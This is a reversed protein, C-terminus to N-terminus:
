AFKGKIEMIGISRLIPVLTGHVDTNIFHQMLHGIDMDTDLTLIYLTENIFEFIFHSTYPIYPPIRLCTYLFKGHIGVPMLPHGPTYSHNCSPILCLPEGNNPKPEIYWVHDSVLPLNTNPTFGPCFLLLRYLTNYYTRRQLSICAQAISPIPCSYHYSWYMQMEDSKVWM